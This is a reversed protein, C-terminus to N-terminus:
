LLHFSDDWECIHCFVFGEFCYIDNINLIIQFTVDSELMFLFIETVKLM